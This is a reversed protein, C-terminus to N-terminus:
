ANRAAADALALCAQDAAVEVDVPEVTATDDLCTVTYVFTEREPHEVTIELHAIPYPGMDIPASADTTPTAATTTTTSAGATTDSDGCAALAAATAVALLLGVPGRRSPRRSPM